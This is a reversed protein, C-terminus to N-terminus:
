EINGLVEDLIAVATKVQTENVVLPPCFRITNKGCGLLLLGKHFCSQVVADLEDNSEDLRGSFGRLNDELQRLMDKANTM